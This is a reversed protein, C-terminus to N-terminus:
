ASIQVIGSGYQRVGNGSLDKRPRGRPRKIMHVGAGSSVTTTDPNSKEYAKLSEKVITTMDGQKVTDKVKNEKLALNVANTAVAGIFPAPNGTVLSMTAGVAVNPKLLIEKSWGLGKKTGAKFTRGEERFFKKVDKNTIKGGRMERLSKMYEKAEDSGKAFRRPKKINGGNVPEETLIEQGRHAGSVIPNRIMKKWHIAGGSINMPQLRFGKQRKISKNYDNDNELEVMHNHSENPNIMQSHSINVSRGKQLGRAQNKNLYIHM